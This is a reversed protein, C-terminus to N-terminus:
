QGTVTVRDTTPLYYMKFSRFYGTSAEPYGFYMQALRIGAPNRKTGRVASTFDMGHGRTGPEGSTNSVFLGSVDMVPSGKKTQEVLKKVMERVESAELLYVTKSQSNKNGSEDANPKLSDRNLSAVPWEGQQAYYTAIGQEVLTCLASAKQARARKMSGSIASVTITILVSIIGIVMLLEVITFGKRRM